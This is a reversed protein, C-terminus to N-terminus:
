PQALPPQTVVPKKGYLNSGAFESFVGRWDNKLYDELISTGDPDGYKHLAAALLIEQVSEM